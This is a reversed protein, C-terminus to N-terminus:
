RVLFMPVLSGGRSINVIRDRASRGVFSVGAPTSTFGITVFESVVQHSDGADLFQGQPLGVYEQVVWGDPQTMAHAVAGDWASQTVDRGISVSDGGYARNPKLVLEERHTRVFDPLDVERGSAAVTKRARLLRTWPIFTQFTRRQSPTFYRSFDPNSLLEFLSKHDFEGTLASIVQNRQFALKMADVNGGHKQISIIEALTCDRYFLDIVKDKCVVEGDRIELERPDAYVTPLGQANLFEAVQRMEDAGGVVSERREVFATVAQKRGIAKAHSELLRRLLVRCDTPIEYTAPAADHCTPLIHRAILENACPMFHLCGVGVANCEIFQFPHPWRLEDVMLNTDFREFVTAPEPFGNPALQKIWALEDPHLPLVAQIAPDTFWAQLLRNLVRRLRIGLLQLYRSQSPTLFWPILQIRVPLTSKADRYVVVGQRIADQEISPPVSEWWTPPQQRLTDLFSASLREHRLRRPATTM